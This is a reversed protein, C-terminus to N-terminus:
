IVEVTPKEGKGLKHLLVKCRVAQMKKAIIEITGSRKLPMVARRELEPDLIM